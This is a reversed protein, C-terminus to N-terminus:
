EDLAKMQTTVGKPKLKFTKKTSDFEGKSVQTLTMGSVTFCVHINHSWVM